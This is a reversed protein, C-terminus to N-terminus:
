VEEPINEKLILYSIGSQTYHMRWAFKYIQPIAKLLTLIWADIKGIANNINSDEDFYTNINM